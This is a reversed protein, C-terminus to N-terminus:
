MQIVEIGNDNEGAVQGVFISSGMLIHGIWHLVSQFVEAM